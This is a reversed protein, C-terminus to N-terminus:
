TADGESDREKSMQKQSIRQVQGLAPCQQPCLSSRSMEKDKHCECDLPPSPGILLSHCRLTPPAPVPSGLSSRSDLYPTQGLKFTLSAEQLPLSRLQTKLHFYSRIRGVRVEAMGRQPGNPICESAFWLFSLWLPKLVSSNIKRM